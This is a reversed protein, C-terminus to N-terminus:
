LYCIHNFFSKTHTHKHIHEHDFLITRPNVSYSSICMFYSSFKEIKKWFLSGLSCCVNQMKSFDAYFLWWPCEFNCEEKHGEYGSIKKRQPGNESEKICLFTPQCLIMHIFHTASRVVGCVSPLTRGDQCFSYMQTLSHFLSLESWWTEWM